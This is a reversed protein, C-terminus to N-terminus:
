DDWDDMVENLVEIKAELEAIRKNAQEVKYWPAAKRKEEYRRDSAARREAVTDPHHQKCYGDKWVNRSCPHFTPWMGEDHVSVSCREPQKTM